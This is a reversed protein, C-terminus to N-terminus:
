WTGLHLLWVDCVGGRLRLGQVGLHLVGCYEFVCLVCYLDFCQEVTSVPVFCSYLVANCLVVVVAQCM